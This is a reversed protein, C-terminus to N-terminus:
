AGLRKDLEARIAELIAKAQAKPNHTLLADTLKEEPTIPKKKQSSTFVIDTRKM